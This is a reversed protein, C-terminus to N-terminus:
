TRLRPQIKLEWFKLSMEGKEIERWLDDGEFELVSSALIRENRVDKLDEGVSRTRHVFFSEFSEDFFKSREVKMVKLRSGSRDELDYAPDTARTEVIERGDIARNVFSIKM